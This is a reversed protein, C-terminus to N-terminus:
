SWAVGGEAAGRWTTEPRATRTHGRARSACSIPLPPFMASSPPSPVSSRRRTKKRSPCLAALPRTRTHDAANKHPTSLTGGTRVCEFFVYGDALGSRLDAARLRFARAEKKFMFDVLWHPYLNLTGDVARQLVARLLEFKVGQANDPHKHRLWTHSCFLVSGEMDDQYEVLVGAAKLEEHSRFQGFSPALITRVPVVYMPHVRKLSAGFFPDRVASTTARTATKPPKMAIRAPEIAGGGVLATSGALTALLALLQDQKASLAAIEAAQRDLKEAQEAHFEAQEARLESLGEAIADVKRGVDSAYASM